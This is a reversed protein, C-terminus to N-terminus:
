MIVSIISVMLVLVLPVMAMNLPYVLGERNIRRATIQMTMMQLPQVM